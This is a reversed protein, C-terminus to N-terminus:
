ELWIEAINASADVRWNGVNNKGEYKNVSYENGLILYLFNDSSPLLSNTIAAKQVIVATSITTTDDNAVGSRFTAIVNKATDANDNITNVVFKTFGNIRLGKVTGFGFKLTLSSRKYNEAYNGFVDASGKCEYVIRDNDFTLNATGGAYSGGSVIQRLCQIWGGTIHKCQDGKNYLYQRLEVKVSNVNQITEIQKFFVYKDDVTVLYKGAPIGLFTLELATDFTQTLNYADTPVYEDDCSRVNCTKGNGSAETCTVVLTGSYIDTSFQGFYPCVLMTTYTVPEADTTVVTITYNGVESAYLKAKGNKITSSWSKGNCTATVAGGEAVAANDTLTIVVNSIESKEGSGGGAMLVKGDGKRGMLLGVQIDKEPREYVYFSVSGANSRGYGQNVIGFAQNYEQVSDETAADTDMLKVLQPCDTETLGAVDVTQGFVSQGAWGSATLVVPIIEQAIDMRDNQTKLAADAKEWNKNQVGIDYFENEDPQVFEYNTTTNNAM